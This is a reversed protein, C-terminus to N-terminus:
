GGEGAARGTGTVSRWGSRAYGDRAQASRRRREQYLLALIVGALLGLLAGTTPPITANPRSARVSPTSALQAPQAPATRLAALATAVGRVAPRELRSLLSGDSGRGSRLLAGLWRELRLHERSRQAANLRSELAVYRRAIALAGLRARSASRADYTIMLARTGQPVVIQMARRLGIARRGVSRAAARLVADSELLQAETDVTPPFLRGSLQPEEPSIGFPATSAFVEVTASYTRGRHLALAAGVLLGVLIPGAILLLHRRVLSGYSSLPVDDGRPDTLM